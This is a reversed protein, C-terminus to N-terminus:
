KCMWKIWEKIEEETLYDNNKIYSAWYNRNWSQMINWIYGKVTEPTLGFDAVISQIHNAFGIKKPTLKRKVCEAIIQRLRDIRQFYWSCM